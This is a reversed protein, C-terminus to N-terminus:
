ALQYEALQMCYKILDRLRTKVIITNATNTPTSIFLDWANTWYYDSTQGGLLIDKKIQAKSNASLDIRFLYKLIDAILINPDGPNSLTQAYAVADVIIKKGNFTYGNVCLLDTFQIRKPFTDSNIWIEYFQPAQYYAKWGSVDPPDGISQQMNTTNSVLFNYLGYNSIYDTSPQFQVNLERCMGVVLDVPSKIQCGMNAVDFFHESSLLTNLVPKLEYNNTKFVAALPTIINAETATDIEYYVFWRYLCRCIYKSPEDATFIMNILDTLELNGATPGTRGTIITNNYFASFTKNSSDHRSSTFYSTFTNNDNRWGTLVKAALKVDNETYLSNPGKGCCFLEQLERGFNEDPATVTNSQGNLYVLMNPETAILKTLAKFNGVANNRLLAFYKYVFNTNSVDNTETAFHNHLFLTMKERISRDQNVMEGMWWKKFSARRRSQITGDTNADNVWTQGALVTTDPQTLAGTTDYEKVPPQPQPATPNLLETITQTLTKTKFYDVDAKKAGFMTRKLLHLIETETFAGTYPNLGSLVRYPSQQPNQLTANTPTQM